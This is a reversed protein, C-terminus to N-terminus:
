NKEMSKNEETGTITAIKSLYEERYIDIDCQIQKLHQREETIIQGTTEENIERRMNM